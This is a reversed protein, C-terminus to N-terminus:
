GGMATSGFTACRTKNPAVEIYSDFSPIACQVWCVSRDSVEPSLETTVSPSAHLADGLGSSQAISSTSNPGTLPEIWGAQDNAILLRAPLTAKAILLVVCALMSM